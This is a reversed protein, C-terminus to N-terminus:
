SLMLSTSLSFESPKPFSASRSRAVSPFPKPGSGYNAKSACTKSERLNNVTSEARGGAKLKDRFRVVDGHTVAAITLEARDGLHELFDRILQKYRQMTTASASGERNKLWEELWSRTSYFQVKEGTANEM